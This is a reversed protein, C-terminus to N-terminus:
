LRAALLTAQRIARKADLEAAVDAGGIRHVPIAERAVAEELERLPEQGTCLVVNDVELLRAEGRVRVHLGADDMREYHVGSLMQVNKDKLTARHVWGSTKGLRMGLPENKRQLLFLERAPPAPQRAVNEVGGPTRVEPDVGWERLWAAADLTPSHSVALFEAVDFGIGGAGVIAVRKGVPAGRLLVDVYSLVKPHDVGDFDPRRPVVGSALVVDDYNGDILMDSSARTNLRVDVALLELQRKYYRLTESFEEKGPIRKAM